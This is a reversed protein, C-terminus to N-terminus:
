PIVAAFTNILAILRTNLLALDLSEGVSYFALRSSSYGFLIPQYVFIGIQANIPTTSINSASDSLNSYRRNITTSTSRSVGYLGSPTSAPNVISSYVLSQM